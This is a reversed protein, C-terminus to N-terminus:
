GQIIVACEPRQATFGALIDFRCVERNNIIDFGKLFRISIGDSNARSSMAMSPQLPLDITALTFASKHYAVNQANTASATGLLTLPANDAPLATVNQYAGGAIIAPSIVATLNGSGDSSAIATVVFQKLYGLDQKNELNTANVNALTFRDGVNLRQAAAATWGDTNLSTTAVYPNDTAGVNTTGQNAGNVLPTGGWVGNTHSVINQSKIFDFGFANGMRGTRYQKSIADNPNFMTSFSSIAKANSQPNLLFYREDDVASDDLLAGANTVLTAVGAQTTPFAGPTGTSAAVKNVMSATRMDLETALRKAAPELYRDTFKDITLTLDVENFAWDIGFLQDIVLPTTTENVDQLSAINGSRITYQVPRRINISAGIKGGTKAFTDDYQRDITGALGLKNHLIALTTNTIMAPSILTNSM